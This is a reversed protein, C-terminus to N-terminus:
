KIKIIDRKILERLVTQLVSQEIGLNKAIDKVKAEGSIQSMISEIHTYMQKMEDDPKAIAILTDEDDLKVKFDIADLTKLMHLAGLTMQPGTGRVLQSLKYDGSLSSWVARLFDRVNESRFKEWRPEKTCVPTVSQPLNEPPLTALLKLTFPVTEYPNTSDVVDEPSEAKWLEPLFSFRERLDEVDHGRGTVLAFILNEFEILIYILEGTEFVSTKIEEDEGVDFLTIAAIVNPARELVTSPEEYYHSYLSAGNKRDVVFFAQHGLIEEDVIEEKSKIVIEDAIMKEMALEPHYNTLGLMSLASVLLYIPRSSVADCLIVNLELELSRTYELENDSAPVVLIPANPKEGIFRVAEHIEDLTTITGGVVLVFGDAIASVTEFQSEELEDFGFLHAMLSFPGIQLTQPNISDERLYNWLQNIADMTPTSTTFDRPYIVCLHIPALLTSKAVEEFKKSMNRTRLTEEMGTLIDSLERSKGVIDDDVKHDDTIIITLLHEGIRYLLTKEGNVDIISEGEGSGNTVLSFYVEIARALKTDEIKDTLFSVTSLTRGSFLDHLVAHTIM